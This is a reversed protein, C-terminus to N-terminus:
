NEKIRVKGMRLGDLGMSWGDGYRHTGMIYQMFIKKTYRFFIKKLIKKSFLVFIQVMKFFLM